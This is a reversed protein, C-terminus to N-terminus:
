TPKRRRLWWLLLVVPVWFIATALIWGFARGSNELVRQLFAGPGATETITLDLVALHTDRSLGELRGKQAQNNQRLDLIQQYLERRKAPDTEKEYKAVLEDESAGLDRIGAGRNYYEETRDETQGKLQVVHGLERLQAVVGDIQDVPVRATLHGESRGSDQVTLSEDAIFGGAKQILARARDFADEVKETEIWMQRSIMQQREGSTDRWPRAPVGEEQYGEESLVVGDARRGSVPPVGAPGAATGWARSVPSLPKKVAPSPAEPAEAADMGAHTSAKLGAKAFVGTQTLMSMGVGSVVVVLLLGAAVSAYRSLQHGWTSPATRKEADRLARVCRQALDAPPNETPLNEMVEDLPSESNDRKEQEM